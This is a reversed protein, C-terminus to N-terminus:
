ASPEATWSRAEGADVVLAVAPGRGVARAGHRFENDFYVCDGTRLVVAVGDHLFEIRGRLVFMFAEGGHSFQPVDAVGPPYTVLFPEMRKDLRKHGLAEYTYGFPGALGSMPKREERRVVVCREDNEAGILTGVTAGLATAINALTAIPSSVRANEVKSLLSRSIDAKTAVSELSLGQAQRLRRIRRGIRAEISPRNVTNGM